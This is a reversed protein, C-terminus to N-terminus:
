PKERRRDQLVVIGGLAVVAGVVTIATGNNYIGMAFLVAAM